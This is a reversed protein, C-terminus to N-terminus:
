PPQVPVFDASSFLIIHNSDCISFYLNGSESTWEKIRKLVFYRPSDEEYEPYLPELVMYDALYGNSEEDPEPVHGTGHRPFKSLTDIDSPIVALFPEDEKHVGFKRKMEERVKDDRPKVWLSEVIISM